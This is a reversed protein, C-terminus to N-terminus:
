ILEESVILSEKGEEIQRQRDIIDSLYQHPIQRTLDTFDGELNKWEVARIQRGCREPLGDLERVVHLLDELYDKKDPLRDKIAEIKQITDRKGKDLAVATKRSFLKEKVAAYVPHFAKSVPEANETIQAEFLDLAESASLSTPETHQSAFKFAYEQGKKGFVLVGPRDKLATRGIRCRKPVKMAEEILAPQASRLNRILNEYPAEPSLEEQEAMDRRFQEAFFSQLEEDKTLVKTDEGFLAHVMAIKLTSIQGIRTEREGTATPFFNYIYLDDFVKKNIRNIRGVRQIVRTPNYPIDYNFVIGARHLNFGESIADTAILVDYDDVQRKYGADFNQRITEKNAKSADSAAYKFVRFHDKLNIYLDNATDAFETFVVIKRDPREKLKEKVIAAFCARKPDDPSGNGFWQRKITELLTIDKKVERTFKEDLESKEIFVLGKDVYKKLQSESLVADLEDELDEGTSELLSEIDPLKGKKYIPVKGFKEYWDLIVQSSQIMSQLTSQFAFMSSEFRRVLLRKMFDALNVQGQRLLNEDTGMREAVIKRYQPLVYESPKYRAGIFGSKEDDDPAITILTDEYLQSLDGLEYELLEPDHVQPFSINQVQLDQWYDDIAQLDLRSRRIVLPYLIKRIDDAVKRIRLSLAAKNESKDKQAKQIHKYEKILERFQFSLNDVTQITSHTPIQFLRVMSFVDQPRNNFPTASLLIVKNKQCLKHLNAYDETLENRYKHAEDIIILKPEDGIEFLADEIKGSTYIKATYDFDFAYDKWQPELHPPAIIVVKLGLNYAIASAIISKGLGVVDAIIVGHHNELIDIAKQVADVQYKLDIFKGRTIEGPLRLQDRRKISFYEELVRIFILFPKPLKEVWIKEVVNNLFDDFNSENAILVSDEWLQQFIAYAERYSVSERSVVNIEFRDRLGSRTLNSSGTIVTGPFEGGQNHEPKNEFLYLKAHNPHFTKRIELTGDKLKEIFLRFSEEKEPSDFFDTGNFLEVLSQNFNERIAGRSTRVDHIVEFEKIRNALDTQIELGVLLKLHKDKLNKYLEQFGSFYFYGVLAYLKQTSPLINNVVDTLLRQQNTIFQTTM